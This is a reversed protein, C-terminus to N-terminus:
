VDIIFLSPPKREAKKDYLANTKLPEISLSSDVLLHL